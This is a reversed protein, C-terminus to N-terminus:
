MNSLLEKCVELTDKSFDKSLMWQLFGRHDPNSGVVQKAYKGFTFEIEGKDNKKFKGAWDVISDVGSYQRLELSDLEQEQMSYIRKTAIVDELADHAGLLEEGTRRLYVSSLDMPMINREISLVDLFDKPKWEIGCREFENVLLPIDFRTSNYGIVTVDKFIKQFLEQAIDCFKPADKVMEDTIGHVASAEEPIPIGPNILFHGESTSGGSVELIYAISVIRDKSADTGTTELDFFVKDM